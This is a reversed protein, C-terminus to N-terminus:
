KKDVDSLSGNMRDMVRAKADHVRQRLGIHNRTRPGRIATMVRLPPKFGEEEERHEEELKSDITEPAWAKRIFWPLMGGVWRDPIKRILAGWPISIAGLGISLGWEKADLRVIKFAQGGIFIILVQGGIMILNIVMFFYNRTIGEFINLKNDLRRNSRPPM